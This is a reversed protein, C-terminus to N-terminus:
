ILMALNYLLLSISNVYRSSIVYITKTPQMPSVVHEPSHEHLLADSSASSLSFASAMFPMTLFM